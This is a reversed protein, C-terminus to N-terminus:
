CCSSYSLRSCRQFASKIKKFFAISDLLEPISNNLIKLQNILSIIAGNLLKKERTNIVVKKDEELNQIINLQNTFIYLERVIEKIRQMNQRLLDITM